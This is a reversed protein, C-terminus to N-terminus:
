STRAVAMCPAPWTKWAISSIRCNVSSVPQKWVPVPESDELHRDGKQFLKKSTWLGSPLQRAVHTPVGDPTAYIAIKQYGEELLHDECSVFGLEGFAAVFAAMTEERAVGEPWYSDEDPWWWQEEDGAAWAVCNYRIEAPSTVVYGSDRLGPFLSELDVM